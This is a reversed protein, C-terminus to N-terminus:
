FLYVSEFRVLKNANKDFIELYEGDIKYNDMKKLAKLFDPEISDKCFMMTSMFGKDSFYLKNGNLIYKGGLGNCGSNGKVLGESFIIHAERRTTCPVSKDGVVTVKWYTNELNAKSLPNQCSEKPIINIFKEVILTQKDKQNDMGDRLAIEGILNVKLSEGATQRTKLYARELTIYEGEFAVPYKKGTKCDKFIAADAMYSYMGSMKTQTKKEQMNLTKNCGSFILGVAMIILFLNKIM